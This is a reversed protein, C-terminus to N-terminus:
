SALTWPMMRWAGHGGPCAEAAENWDAAWGGAGCAQSQKCEQKEEGQKYCRREAERRLEGDASSMASESEGGAARSAAGASAGALSAGESGSSTSVPVGFFTLGTDLEGAAFFLSFTGGLRGSALEEAPAGLRGIPPPDVALERKDAVLEVRVGAVFVDADFVVGPLLKFLGGVRGGTVEEARRGGGLERRDESMSVNVDPSSRLLWFPTDFRMDPGVAVDPLEAALDVAVGAALVPVVDLPSRREVRVEPLLKLEEARRGADAEVLALGPGGLGVLVLVRWDSPAPAFGVAPVVLPRVDVVLRVVAEELVPLLM